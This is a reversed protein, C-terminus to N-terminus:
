FRYSARLGYTRPEGLGLYFANNLHAQAATLAPKVGPLNVSATWIDQDRTAVTVYYQDFANLLFAEATFSGKEIGLRLDLTDREGSWALNTEDTYMKGAHIYQGNGYWGWDGALPARYEAFLNGKLQPSGPLQNGSVVNSGTINLQCPVCEYRGIDTKNWALSGSVTFRRTLRASAELEIGELDTQGGNTLLTLINGAPLGDLSTPVVVRQQIVQNTWRGSYIAATFALRGDLLSGKAGIEAMAIKEGDYTVGAGTQALAFATNQPRGVLGTNYGQPQTASAWSVYLNLAENPAYQLSVRPMFSSDDIEPPLVVTGSGRNKVKIKDQQYRGELNLTFQDNLDFVLNGFVGPTKVLNVSANAASGGFSVGTASSTFGWTATAYPYVRFYSVGLMGRIRKEPNSAIRLEHDASAERGLSFIYFTPFPLVGPVAPVGPAGAFYPNVVNGVPQAISNTLFQASRRNWAGLYSLTTGELPGSAFTYESVLNVHFTESVDSASADRSLVPLRDVNPLSRSNNYFTDYVAPTIVFDAGIRAPDIKPLKGCLFNNQNTPNFTAASSAADAACNFSNATLKAFTPYGDENRNYLAALRTTWQETPRADVILAASRSSQGTVDGGSAGSRFLGGREYDRYSLRFTLTETAIPGEVSARLDRLDQSGVIGEVSGAWESSPRRPVLNVAGAFTSRGFYAAQPGKIVEVRELDGLYAAQGNAAPAGNVFIGAGPRSGASAPLVGRITFIQSDRRARQAGYTTLTFGPAIEAIDELDKLDRKGFDASTLASIALPVDTLKEERRRASVVVEALDATGDETAPEQAFAPSTDFLTFAVVTAAWIGASPFHHRVFRRVFSPRRM